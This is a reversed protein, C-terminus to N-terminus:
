RGGQGIRPPPRVALALPDTRQNSHANRAEREFAAFRAPDALINWIPERSAVIASALPPDEDQLLALVKLLLRDYPPRLEVLSPRPRGAHLERFEDVLDNVQGKLTIKTFMGIAKTERLRTELGALDLPPASPEPKAAVATATSPAPAAAPAAPSPARPSVTPTRKTKAVVPASAVPAPPEAVAAVAPPPPPTNGQSAEPAPSALVPTAAAAEPPVPEVVACGTVALSLLAGRISRSRRRFWSRHLHVSDELLVPRAVPM